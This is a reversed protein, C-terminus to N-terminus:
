RWIQSVGVPPLRLGCDPMAVVCHTKDSGPSAHINQEALAAKQHFGIFTAKPLRFQRRGDPRCLVSEISERPYRKQLYRCFLRKQGATDRRQGSEACFVPSLVIETGPSTPLFRQM